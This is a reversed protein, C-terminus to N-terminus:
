PTAAALSHSSPDLEAARLARLGQLVKEPTIPLDRVRVGTARYVANAIAPMVTPLSTEGLGHVVARDPDELFWVAFAEPLDLSSSIMYDGLNGNRLQGSDFVLEEFLAQGMGFALNGETQLEAGVPSIVTGAFVASRFALLEVKGTELDVSVDAAGAAQHWHVSAIGQGTEPDLGGESRYAGDGLLNGRGSRAMVEAVSRSATETGRVIARGDVITLDSPAIELQDGADELLRNRVARAAQRVASGTAYTSRSSSTQQDFPTLDTDPYAVTVRDVPVDLERAAIRALTGHIDQGMEVSSALVNVSGDTNLKVVASSASPTVTGKIIMSLGRARVRRGDASVDPETRDGWGIGAAVNNLLEAFHGDELRQGMPLEDDDVLLNRRRLELPDQGLREAIMDM